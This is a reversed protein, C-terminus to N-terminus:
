STENPMIFTSGHLAHESAPTHLLLPYEPESVTTSAPLTMANHVISSSHNHTLMPVNHCLKSNQNLTGIKAEYVIDCILKLAFTSMEASIGELEGAVYKGFSDYKDEIEATKMERYDQTQNKRRKLLEPSCTSM